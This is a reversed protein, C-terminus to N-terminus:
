ANEGTTSTTQFDIVGRINRGAHMDAYAENIEDLSYRRTILEDLKLKGDKYLGLLKHVADRPSGIGYLVGQIRKQYMSIEFLNIPTGFELPSGQSTVVVTGAKRIAAFADAIHQGDIVGVTVIASDAGQGNTISKVYETAAAVDEFVETAGFNPAMERKFPAPDVVVVHSAGAHAAGQVANMGVGGVGLILVVDGPKVGAGNVASGWGTPVGCAVLCAVDLPIDQDIRILSSEDMVQWTAFTGLMAAKPVNEGRARMRHTGDFQTGELILAGNDCLNQMGRACWVCAGCAPVFSTVVHDGPRLSKVGPGVERVIGSGEHGGCFPLSGLPVDGTAMHDDSHCLGSAVMEVLVEGAQPESLEVDDIEWEGPQNWLIAARARM